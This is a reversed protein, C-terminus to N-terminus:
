IVGRSKKMHPFPYISFVKYLLVQLAPGLVDRICFPCAFVPGTRVCWTALLLASSSLEGVQGEQLTSGHLVLKSGWKIFKDARKNM